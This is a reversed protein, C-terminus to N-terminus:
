KEFGITNIVGFETLKQSFLTAAFKVQQYDAFCKMIENEFRIFRIEMLGCVETYGINKYKLFNILIKNIDLNEVPSKFSGTWRGPISIITHDYSKVPNDGHILAYTEMKGSDQIYDIANNWIIDPQNKFFFKATNNM